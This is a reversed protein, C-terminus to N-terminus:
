ARCPRSVTKGSAAALAAAELRAEYEDWHSKKEMKRRM